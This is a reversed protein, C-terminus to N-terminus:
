SSAIIFKKLYKDDYVLKIHYLYNLLIIINMVIILNYLIEKNLFIVRIDSDSLIATKKYLSLLLFAMSVCFLVVNSYYLSSHNKKLSSGMYNIIFINASILFAISLTSTTIDKSTEILYDFKSQQSVQGLYYMIYINTSLLFIIPIYSKGKNIYQLIFSIIFIFIIIAALLYSNMLEYFTYRLKLVTNETNYVIGIIGEVGNKNFKTSIINNKIPLLSDIINKNDIKIAWYFSLTTFDTNTYYLNEMLTPNVKYTITGIHDNIIKQIDNFILDQYEINDSVRNIFYSYLPIQKEVNREYIWIPYKYGNIIIFNNKRNYNIWEEYSMNNLLKLRNNITEKFTLNLKNINNLNFDINNNLRTLDSYDLSYRKTYVYKILYYYIICIIIITSTTYIYM